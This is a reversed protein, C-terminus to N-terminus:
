RARPRHKLLPQALYIIWAIEIRQSSSAVPMHGVTLSESMETANSSSPNGDMSRDATRNRDAVIPGYDANGNSHM